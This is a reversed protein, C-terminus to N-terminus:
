GPLRRDMEVTGDLFDDFNGICVWTHDFISNRFLFVVLYARDFGGFDLHSLDLSIKSTFSIDSPFPKQVQWKPMLSTIWHIYEWVALALVWYSVSPCNSHLIRFFVNWGSFGIGDLSLLNFFVLAQTIIKM